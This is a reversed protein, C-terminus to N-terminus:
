NDLNPRPIPTFDVQSEGEEDVAVRLVGGIVDGMKGVVNMAEEQHGAVAIMRSLIEMQDRHLRDMRRHLVTLWVSLVLVALGNLFIALAIM